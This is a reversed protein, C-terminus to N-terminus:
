SPCLFNGKPDPVCAPPRPLYRAWMWQPFSLKDGQNAAVTAGNPCVTGPGAALDRTTLTTTECPVNTFQQQGSAALRVIRILSGFVDLGGAANQFVNFKIYGTAANFPNESDNDIAWGGGDIRSVVARQSLAISYEGFLAVVNPISPRGKITTSVGLASSNLVLWLTYTDAGSIVQWVTPHQDTTVVPNAGLPHKAATFADALGRIVPGNRLTGEVSLPLFFDATVTYNQNAAVGLAPRGDADVSRFVVHTTASDKIRWFVETNLVVLLADAALTIGADGFATVLGKSVPGTTALKPLLQVPISFEHKPDKPRAAPDPSAAELQPVVLEAREADLEFQFVGGIRNADNPNAVAVAANAFIVDRLTAGDFKAGQLNAGNFSAQGGNADVGLKAGIFKAATLVAYDFNCGFLDAQTLDIGGLNANNALLGNLKAKNLNVANGATAYLQAGSARVGYLNASKLNIDVMFANSLVAPTTPQYVTLATAEGLTELFVLYINTVDDVQWAKGPAFVMPRVIVNSSLPRKNNTFIEAVGAVNGKQLAALFGAYGATDSGVRFLQSVAGLEAGTLDARRLSANALNAGHMPVGGTLTAGDLTAFGLNARDLQTNDLKCGTLDAHAFNVDRLDFGTLDLYTITARSFNTAATIVLKQGFVDIRDDPNCLTAGTLDAGTLDMTETVSSGRFDVDTLTAGAFTTPGINGTGGLKVGAMKANVFKTGALNVAETMDAGNLTAGTLDAGNLDVGQMKAGTFNAGTLTAEDFQAGPLEAKTFNSGPAVATQFSTGDPFTTASLDAHSLDAQSLDVIGAPTFDTGSLDVWALEPQNSNFGSDLITDIGVTVVTTTLTTTVPPADSRAVPALTAGTVNWLQEAAGNATGLDVVRVTDDGGDALTFRNVTDTAAKDAVYTTGTLAIYKGNSAQLTFAADTGYANFRDSGDKAGPGVGLRGTSPDVQVANAGSAWTWKGLFTM